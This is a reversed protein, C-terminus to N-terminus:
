SLNGNYWDHLSVETDAGAESLMQAFAEPDQTGGDRGRYHYPIVMAPAFEAVADAAQEATMTFPLNMCVLALDIDQLGRMEDTGETDGSIYIRGADTTVVFGIDGREQPHFDMRGETINYAPVAEIGLGIMETTEGAAIAQARGQMDEPMMGMVDANTLIPVEPLAALLDASYHDGHRHTVLILEPAPLGEYDAAAGVPDVYVVGASTEMVFSAHSIPHLTVGGDLVSMSAGEEAALALSPLVTVTGAAASGILFNRRTTM